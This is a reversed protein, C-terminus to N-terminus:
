IGLLEGVPIIEYGRKKLEEIILPLAEVTSERKVGGDHMLFIAGPKINKIYEAALESGTMKKWDCGFSWNVLVMDHRGAVERVWPKVFGYPMRMLRPKLGSIKELAANARAIEGSLLEEKDDKKYSYFNPHTYSHAGVEHGDNYVSKVIESRAAALQGEMFFTAKINGAKLIELIKPTFKGPGDDFTLAVAKRDKNGQAFFPAMKQESNVEASIVAALVFLLFVTKKM